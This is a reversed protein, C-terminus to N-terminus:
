MRMFLPHMELTLVCTPLFSAGGLDEFLNKVM